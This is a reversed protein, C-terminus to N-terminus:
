CSKSFSRVCWNKFFLPFFKVTMGSALASLLDSTFLIYPIHAKRLCGCKAGDDTNDAACPGVNEHAAAHGADPVVAAADAATLLADKEAAVAATEAAGQVAAGESGESSGGGASGGAAGREKEVLAHEDTLTFLFVAAPIELCLGVVFPIRIQALTWTDGWVSFLVICVAPGLASPLMYCMMLVTYYTSREGEAVSDAFLAQAPGNSIGESIGWVVMAFCLAYYVVTNSWDFPNIVAVLSTGTALLLFVGGVRCIPGRGFRDALWGVPLATFLQAIGAM